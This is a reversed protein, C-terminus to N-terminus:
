FLSIWPGMERYLSFAMRYRVGSFQVEKMLGSMFLGLSLKWFYATRDDRRACVFAGQCISFSMDFEVREASSLINSRDM